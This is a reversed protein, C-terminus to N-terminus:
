KKLMMRYAQLAAPFPSLTREIVGQLVSVAIGYNTVPVGAERAKEIRALMERRTIM